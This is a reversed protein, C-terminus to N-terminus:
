NGFIKIIKRKTLKIAKEIKMQAISQKRASNDRSNQRLFRILVSSSIKKTIGAKTDLIHNTKVATKVNKLIQHIFKNGYGRPIIIIVVTTRAMESGDELAAKIRIRTNNLKSVVAERVDTSLALKGTNANIDLLPTPDLLSYAVQSSGGDNTARVNGLNSKRTGMSVIFVYHKRKFTLGLVFM